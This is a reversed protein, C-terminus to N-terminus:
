TMALNRLYDYCGAIVNKGYNRLDKSLVLIIIPDLASLILRIGNVMLYAALIEANNSDGGPWYFSTYVIAIPVSWNIISLTLIIRVSKRKQERTESPGTDRTLLFVTYISSIGGLIYITAIPVVVLFVYVFYQIPRGNESTNCTMVVQYQPDWFNDSFAVIVVEFVFLHLVTYSLFTWIYKHKIRGFPFKITYLRIFILVNIVIQSLWSSPYSIGQDFLAEIHIGTRGPEDETKKLFNHAQFLPSYINVIFDLLALLAHLRSSLKSDRQIHYLFSLPNLTTSVLFILILCTGITYDLLLSDTHKPYYVTMKDLFNCGEIARITVNLVLLVPAIYIFYSTISITLGPTRNNFNSFNNNYKTM